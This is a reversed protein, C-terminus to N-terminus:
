NGRETRGAWVIGLRNLVGLLRGRIKTASLRTWGLILVSDFCLINNSKSLFTSWHFNWGGFFCCCFVTKNPVITCIHLLFTQSWGVRSVCMQTLQGSNVTKKLPAERVCIHLHASTCINLQAFICRQPPLPLRAKRADLSTSAWRRWNFTCHQLTFFYFICFSM